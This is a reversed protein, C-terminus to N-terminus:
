VGLKFGCTSKLESLWEANQKPNRVGFIPSYDVGKMKLTVKNIKDIPYVILARTEGTFSNDYFFALDSTIAVLSVCHDLNDETEVDYRNAFGDIVHKALKEPSNTIQFFRKFSSFSLVILIIILIIKGVIQQEIGKRKNDSQRRAKGLVDAPTIIRGSEGDNEHGDNQSGIYQHVGFFVVVAVLSSLFLVFYLYETQYLLRLSELPNFFESIGFYSLYQYAFNVSWGTFILAFLPLISGANAFVLNLILKFVTFIDFIVTLISMRKKM